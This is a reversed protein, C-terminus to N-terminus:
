GSIKGLNSSEEIRLVKLSTSNSLIQQQLCRSGFEHPTKMSERFYKFLRNLACNDKRNSFMFRVEECLNDIQEMSMEIEKQRSLEYERQAAHEQSKTLTRGICESMQSANGDSSYRMREYFLIPYKRLVVVDTCPINGGDPFIGKLSINLYRTQACFGLKAHWPALRTGNVHIKLRISCSNDRPNYNKDLPDIGEECNQLLADCIVLKAGVFIKGTEVFATLRADLVAQISYWGDTLELRSLACNDEEITSLIQCVCLTILRGASEDRNLILRLSSREAGICEREFRYRLQNHVNMKCLYRSFHSPFSREMSAIKWVIWQYHNRIWNLSLLSRHEQKIEKRLEFYFDQVGYDGDCDSTLGSDIHSPLGNEGFRLDIANGRNVHYSITSLFASNSANGSSLDVISLPKLDFIKSFRHLSLNKRSLSTVDEVEKTVGLVHDYNLIRPKTPPMPRSTISLHEQNLSSGLVEEAKRLSAASLPKGGFTRAVHMFPTIPHISSKGSSGLEHNFASKKVSTQDINPFHELTSISSTKTYPNKMANVSRTVIGTRARTPHHPTSNCISTVREEPPDLKKLVDSASPLPEESVFEEGDKQSSSSEVVYSPRLMKSPKYPNSISFRKSGVPLKSRNSTPNIVDSCKLSGLEKM